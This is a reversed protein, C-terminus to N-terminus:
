AKQDREAGGKAFEQGASQVPIAPGARPGVKVVVTRTFGGPKM